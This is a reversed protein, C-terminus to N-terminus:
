WGSSTPKTVPGAPTPSGPLPLQPAQTPRVGNNDVHMPARRRQEAELEVNYAKVAETLLSNIRNALELDNAQLAESYAERYALIGTQWDKIKISGAANTARAKAREALQERQRRDKGEEMMRTRELMSAQASTTIREKALERERQEREKMGGSSVSNKWEEVGKAGGKSFAMQTGRVIPHDAPINYQKSLYDTLMTDELSGDGKALRVFSDMFGTANERSIKARQDQNKLLKEERELPIMSNKARMEEMKLPHMEGELQRKQQSSAVNELFNATQAQSQRQTNAFDMGTMLAGTGPGMLSKLDFPIPQM